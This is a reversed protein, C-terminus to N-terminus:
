SEVLSRACIAWISPGVRKVTGVVTVISNEPPLEEYDGVRVEVGDLYFRPPEPVWIPAPYSVAGTTRVERNEFESLHEVLYALDVDEPTPAPVTGTWMEVVQWEAPAHVAGMWKEILQWGPYGEEPGRLVLFSAPAIIAIAIVIGILYKMLTIQGIQQNLKRMLKVMIELVHV